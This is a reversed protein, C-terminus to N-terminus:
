RTPVMSIQGDEPHTLKSLNLSPSIDRMYSGTLKSEKTAKSANQELEHRIQDRSTTWFNPKPSTRRKSLIDKALDQKTMTPMMSLNVNM